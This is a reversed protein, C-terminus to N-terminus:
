AASCQHRQGFVNAASCQHRVEFLNAASCQHRMGFLVAASCQHQKEFESAASCQQRKECCLAAPCPRRQLHRARVRRSPHTTTTFVVCCVCVVVGFCVSGRFRRFGFWRRWMKTGVEVRCLSFPSTQIPPRGFNAFGQRRPFVIRCLAGGAFRPRVTGKVARVRPGPDM